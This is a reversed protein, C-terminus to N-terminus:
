RNGSIFGAYFSGLMIATVILTQYDMILDKILPYIQPM